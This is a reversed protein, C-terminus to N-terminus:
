IRRARLSARLFICRSPRSGPFGFGTNPAAPPGPPRPGPPGPPARGPPTPPPPPPPPPPPNLRPGRQLSAACLPSHRRPIAVAAPAPLAPGPALLLGRGVDLPRDRAIRVVRLGIRVAPLHMALHFLEIHREGVVVLRKRDIRIVCRSIEAAALHMARLAFREI